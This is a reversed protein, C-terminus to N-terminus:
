RILDAHKVFVPERMQVAAQEIKRRKQYQEDTEILILHRVKMLAGRVKENNSKKITQHLRRLGLAKLTRVMTEPTGAFSRKLTVYLSKITPESMSNEISPHNDVLVSHLFGFDSDDSGSANQM